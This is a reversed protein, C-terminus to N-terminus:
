QALKKNIDDIREQLTKAIRFYGNRKFAPLCKEAVFAYYGDRRALSSEFCAIAKEFYMDAKSDISDLSEAMSIYSMALELPHGSLSELIDISKQFNRRATAVDGMAMYCLGMNNCLTAIPLTPKKYFYEFCNKAKLFISLAMHYDAFHMYATAISTYVDGLLSYSFGQRSILEMASKIASYAKEKLNQKRYIGSLENYCILEQEFDHRQNFEKAKDILYQEAKNFDKSYFISDLEDYLKM